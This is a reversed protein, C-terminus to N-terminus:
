FLDFVRSVRLHLGLLARPGADSFFVGTRADLGLIWTRNLLYDVGFLAHAEPLLGVDDLAYWGGAGVGFFPVVQVVDVLYAAEVRGVVAHAFPKFRPGYGLSARLNFVDWLGWTGGVTVEAGTRTTEDGTWQSAGVTLDLSAQDEYALATSGVLWIAMSVLTAWRLPADRM